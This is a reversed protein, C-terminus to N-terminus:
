VDEKFDLIQRKCQRIYNHQKHYIKLVGKILVFTFGGLLTRKLQSPVNKYLTSGLFAAITPFFLAGCFTRTVTVPDSIPPLSVQLSQRQPAYNFAPLIYRSLPVLPIYKRLSKLVPEQWRIMKGLVLGFPILPLSVLLFLPDRNEMVVLGRQQGLTQMVTVAGFTVCTWYLSGVCVGGAIIPSVRQILLECNDLLTVIYSGAPLHIVYKTGCQPCEVAAMNNGKQKEDLWRQICAQHVWKTTGRCRGM